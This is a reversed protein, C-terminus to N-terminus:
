RLPELEHPAVSVPWGKPGGDIEVYIRDLGAPRGRYSRVVVGTKGANQGSLIRVRAFPALPDSEVKQKFAPKM